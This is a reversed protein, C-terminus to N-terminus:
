YDRADGVFGMEQLIKNDKPYGQTMLPPPFVPDSRERRALYKFMKDDMVVERVFNDMAGLWYLNFYQTGEIAPCLYRIANGNYLRRLLTQNIGYRNLNKESACCKNDRFHDNLNSQIFFATLCFPCFFARPLHFIFHKMFDCRRKFTAQSACMKWKCSLSYKPASSDIATAVIKVHKNLM